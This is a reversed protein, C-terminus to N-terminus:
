REAAQDVHEKARSCADNKSPHQINKSSAIYEAAVEEREQETATHWGYQRVEWRDEDQTPCIWVYDQCSFSTDKDYGQISM